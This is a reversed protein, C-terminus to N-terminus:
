TPQTSAQQSRTTSLHNRANVNLLQVFAHGESRCFSSGSPSSVLHLQGCDYECEFPKGKDALSHTGDGSTDIHPESLEDFYFQEAEEEEEEDDDDHAYKQGKRARDASKTALGTKAAKKIVSKGTSPAADCSQLTRLADLM